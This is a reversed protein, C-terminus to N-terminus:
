QKGGLNGRICIDYSLKMRKMISSSSCQNISCKLQTEKTWTTGCIAVYSYPELIDRYFRNNPYGITVMWNTVFGAYQAYVFFSVKDKVAFIACSM